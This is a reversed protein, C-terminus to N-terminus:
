IFCLKFNLLMYIYIYLHSSRSYGKDLGTYNKKRVNM